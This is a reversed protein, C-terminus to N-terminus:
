VGNPCGCLERVGIYSPSKDDPVRAVVANIIRSKNFVAVKKDRRSPFGDDGASSKIRRDYRKPWENVEERNREATLM